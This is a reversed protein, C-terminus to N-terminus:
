FVEWLEYVQWMCWYLWAVELFSLMQQGDLFAKEFQEYVEMIVGDVGVMIFVLVIKDVYCCLGIGYFFDVIVLFYMKEKFMVIVNIDMINWYVIEYSCIGCECFM